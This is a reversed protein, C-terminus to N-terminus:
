LFHWLCGFVVFSFVILTMIHTHAPLFDHVVHRLSFFLTRLCLLISKPTLTQLHLLWGNSDVRVLILHAIILRVVRTCSSVEIVEEAHLAIAIIFILSLFISPVRTPTFRNVKEFILEEVILYTLIWSSSCLTLTLTM